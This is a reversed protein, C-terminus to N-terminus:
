PLPLRISGRIECGNSLNSASVDTEATLNRQRIVIANAGPFGELYLGTCNASLSFGTARGVEGTTSVVTPAVTYGVPLSIFTLGAMAGDVTSIAIRFWVDLYGNAATYYGDQHSYTHSGTTTLGAIIPTYNLIKTSADSRILRRAQMGAAEAGYNRLGRAARLFCAAIKDHGTAPPHVNDAGPEVDPNWAKQTDVLQVNLGMSGLVSAVEASADWFMGNATENYANYYPAGTAAGAANMRLTTGLLVCPGSDETRYGSDIWDIFVNETTDTAGIRKVEITHQGGSPLPVIMLRPMYEISSVAGGNGVIRGNTLNNKQDDTLVLTGDCRIEIKGGFGNQQVVSMLLMDGLVKFTATSNLTNTYKGYSLTPSASWTGAYAIRADNGLIKASDPIAAYACAAYLAAKYGALYERIIGLDGIHRQDNFGPLIATIQNAAIASNYLPYIWDMISGGSIAGNISPINLQNASKVRWGDNPYYTNGVFGDTISDGCYRISAGAPYALTLYDSVNKGRHLLNTPGERVWAGVSLATSDAKVVYPLNESYPPASTDFYYRGDVVGTAGVLTAVRRAVDSARFEELSTFVNEKPDTISIGGPTTGDGVFVGLPGEAIAIEGMNLVTSSFAARSAHPLIRRPM